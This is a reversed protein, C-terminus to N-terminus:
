IIHFTWCMSCGLCSKYSLSKHYSGEQWSRLPSVNPWESLGWSSAIEWSLRLLFVTKYLQPWCRDMNLARRIGGCPFSGPGSKRGALTRVPSRPTWSWHTSAALVQSFDSIYKMGQSHHPTSSIFFVIIKKLALSTSKTTTWFLILM